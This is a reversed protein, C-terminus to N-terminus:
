GYPDGFGAAAFKDRFVELQALTDGNGGRISRFMKKPRGWGISSVTDIAELKDEAVLWAVIKRTRRRGVKVQSAVHDETFFKDVHAMFYLFVKDVDRAAGKWTRV